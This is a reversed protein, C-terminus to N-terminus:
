LLGLAALEARMESPMDDENGSNQVAQDFDAPADEPKFYRWGQFPRRPQAVTPVLAPDLMLACRGVGDADTFRDIACLRQRAQIQGRIVWYLSGGALLEEARRPAMRTVHSLLPPQGDAVLAQLRREQLQALQAIQDIGVCLKILHLPM